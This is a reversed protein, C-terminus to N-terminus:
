QSLIIRRRSIQVGSLSTTEMQILYVGPQRTSIDSPMEHSGLPLESNLLGEVLRGSADLLRIRVQSNEELDFRLRFAGTTPNPFLQLENKSKAARNRPIYLGIADQPQALGNAWESGPLTKWQFDSFHHASRDLTMEWIVDGEMLEVAGRTSYTGLRLTDFKQIFHVDENMRPSRVSLVRVGPPLIAFCQFSGISVPRSVRVPIIHNPYASPWGEPDDEFNFGNTLRQAPQFSRNVDGRSLVRVTRNTNSDQLTLLVTDTVWDTALNASPSQLSHQLVLSADSINVVGDGNADAAKRALGTILSPNAFSQFILHADAATVGGPALATQATLRYAGNPLNQFVFHGGGVVSYTQSWQANSSHVSFTLSIFALLVYRFYSALLSPNM